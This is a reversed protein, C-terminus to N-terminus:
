TRRQEVGIQHLRDGAGGVQRRTRRTAGATVTVDHRAKGEGLSVPQLFTHQGTNGAVLGVRPRLTCAEPREPLVSAFGTVGVFRPREDELVTSLPHFAANRAVRRVPRRVPM